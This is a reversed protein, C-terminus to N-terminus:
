RTAGGRFKRGLIELRDRYSSEAVVILGRQEHEPTQANLRRVYLDFRNTLEEFAREYPDERAWAWPKEIAVAFLVGRRHRIIKYIDDVLQRRREKTLSDFPKPIKDEPRRLQSVHFEIPETVNPFYKAQIADLDQTFWHIEREFVALGSLVFTKADSHVGSEDM